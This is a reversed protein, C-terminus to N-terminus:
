AGAGRRLPVAEEYTPYPAGVCTSCVVERTWRHIETWTGFSGCRSCWRTEGDVPQPLGREDPLYVVGGEIAEGIASVAGDDRGQCAPNVARPVDIPALDCSSCRLLSRGSSTTRQHWVFWRHPRPAWPVPRGREDRAWRSIGAQEWRKRVVTAVMSAARIKRWHPLSVEVNYGFAHAVKARLAELDACAENGPYSGLLDHHLEVLCGIPWFAIRDLVLEELSM